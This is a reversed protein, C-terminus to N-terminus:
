GENKADIVEILSIHKNLRYRASEHWAKLSHTSAWYDPVKKRKLDRIAQRIEKASEDLRKLAKETHTKM